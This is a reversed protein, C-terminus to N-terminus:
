RISLVIQSPHESDHYIKVKSKSYKTATGPNDKTCPNPAFRPYSSGAVLVRVKHGKKVVQSVAWLDVNIEAPTGADLWDNDQGNRYRARAIGDVLVRSAGDQDVDQLSVFIDADPTDATVWVKAEIPGTIELDSKMEESTYTVVDDRRSLSSADVPGAQNPPFLPGGMTPVLNDPDHVFADAQEGGSRQRDLRGDKGGAAHGGSHFYWATARADAPPWQDFSRWQNIGMTFIKVKPEHFTDRGLLHKDFWEIYVKSYALFDAERGYTLGALKNSMNHAWPGIVLHSGSRTRSGAKTTLNKWDRLTTGAFLDYWGDVLLAPAEIKDWRGESSVKKWYDDFQPHEVWDNFFKVDFGNRSDVTILPPTFSRGPRFLIGDKGTKRANELSWSASQMLQYVNQRYSVDYISSGTFSPAWAGLESGVRNATQWQTFGFYSFGFLGIRRDCWPQKHVWNFTDEGDPGENHFAYWQGQSGYRGRVDQVVFAYGRQAFLKAFISMGVGRGYPTRLIIAPFPGQAQPLYIDTALQVGDSMPVMVTRAGQVTNEAGRWGAKKAMIAGCGGATAVSLVLFLIWLKRKM